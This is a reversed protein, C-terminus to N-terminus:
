KISSSPQGGRGGRCAPTPAEELQSRQRQSNICARDSEPLTEDRAVPGLSPGGVVGDGGRERSVPLIERCFIHLIVFQNTITSIKSPKTTLDSKQSTLCLKLCIKGFAGM